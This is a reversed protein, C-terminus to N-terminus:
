DIDLIKFVCILGHLCLECFVCLCFCGLLVFVFVLGCVCTFLVAGVCVRVVCCFLSLELWLFRIM